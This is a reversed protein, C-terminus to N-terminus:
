YDDNSKNKTDRIGSFVRLVTVSIKGNASLLRPQTNGAIM